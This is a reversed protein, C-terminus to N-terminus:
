AYKKASTEIVKIYNAREFEDTNPVSKQSMIGQIERVSEYGNKQMWRELDRILMGIYEPGHQLLVSATMVADAGALLYKIVEVGSQVGSSAALSANLKGHLMAIWRLPLRIDSPASLNLRPDIEMAVLNFDPQYFRDFLVLGDVGCDDFQRTIHGLSSYFPSMKLAVPINVADKVAQVISCHRQEIEQGSIGPDTPVHYINLELASAGAEQMKLAPAEWGTTSLGNLSGIIPIDCGTATKHLLEFYADPALTYDDADPFYPHEIGAKTTQEEFLSSLVIAAAGAEIARNIKEESASIPSSSVILPNKLTLGMYTTQLDM